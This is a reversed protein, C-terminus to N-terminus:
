LRAAVPTLEALEARCAACGELHARVVAREDSSGAGLAYVGLQERM